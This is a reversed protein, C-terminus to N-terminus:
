VDLSRTHAHDDAIFERQEATLTSPQRANWRWVQGRREIRGAAYLAALRPDPDDLPVGDPGALRWRLETDSLLTPATM